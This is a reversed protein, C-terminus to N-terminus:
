CSKDGQGTYIIIACRELSRCLSDNLKPGDIAQLSSECDPCVQICLTPVTILPISDSSCSGAYYSDVDKWGYSVTQIADDWARITTAAGAQAHKFPKGSEKFIKANRMYISKLGHALAREYIRNFGRSIQRDAEVQFSM